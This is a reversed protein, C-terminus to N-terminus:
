PAGLVIISKWIGSSVRKSTSVTRRKTSVSIWGWSSSISARSPSAGSTSALRLAFAMPRPSKAMFMGASTPPPPKLATSIHRTSSCSPLVVSASMRLMKPWTYSISVAQLPRCRSSYRKGDTRPSRIQAKPIVSGSAPESAAPM